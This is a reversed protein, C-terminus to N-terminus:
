CLHERGMPATCLARFLRRHHLDVVIPVAEVEVTAPAAPTNANFYSSQVSLGAANRAKIRYVYRTDPEVDSDVYSNGANGTNDVHVYFVGPADTDADRRLIQYSTISDDGPDDWRLSVVDHTVDGTLGQPRAPPDTPPAQASVLTVLALLAAAAALLGAAILTSSRPRSAVKMGNVVGCAACTKSHSVM